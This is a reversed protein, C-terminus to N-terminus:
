GLREIVDARGKSGNAEYKTVTKSDRIRLQEKVSSVDLKNALYVAVGERISRWSLDRRNPDVGALSCLNEFIYNL